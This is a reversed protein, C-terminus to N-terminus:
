SRRVSRSRARHRVGPIPTRHGRGEKKEEGTVSDTGMYALAKGIM